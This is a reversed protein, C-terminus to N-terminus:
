SKTNTGKGGGLFSSGEKTEQVQGTWPSLNLPKKEQIKKQVRVTEIHKKFPSARNRKEM